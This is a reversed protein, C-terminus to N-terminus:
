TLSASWSKGVNRRERKRSLFSFSLRCPNFTVGVYLAEASSILCAMWTASGFRRVSQKEFWSILDTALRPHGSSAAFSIVSQTTTFDPVINYKKTSFLYQLAMELNGADLFRRVIISFTAANPTIQREEMLQLVKWAYASRRRQQAKSPYLCEHPLTRLVHSVKLLANMLGVDPEVGSTLMDEFIAWADQWESVSSAANMLATYIPLDPKHGDAKLQAAIALCNHYNRKEAEAMLQMTFRAKTTRTMSTQFRTDNQYGVRSSSPSPDTSSPTHANLRSHCTSFAHRPWNGALKTLRFSHGRFVTKGWPSIQVNRKLSRSALM